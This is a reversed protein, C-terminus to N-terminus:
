EEDDDVDEMCEITHDALMAKPDKANKLEENWGPITASFQDSLDTFDEDTAHPNMIRRIDREYVRKDTSHSLGEKTLPNRHLRVFVNLPESTPTNDIKRVTVGFGKSFPSHTHVVGKISALMGKYEDHDLVYGEEGNPAFDMKAVGPAFKGNAFQREVGDPTVVKNDRNRHIYRYLASEKVLKGDDIKGRTVIYRPELAGIKSRFVGAKLNDKDMRSWVRNAKRYNDATHEESQEKSPILFSTTTHSQGPWTIHNHIVTEGTPTKFPVQNAASIWDGHKEHYGSVGFHGKHAPTMFEATHFGFHDPNIIGAHDLLEDCTYHQTRTEGQKMGETPISLGLDVHQVGYDVVSDTM